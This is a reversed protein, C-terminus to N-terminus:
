CQCVVFWWECLHKLLQKQSPKWCRCRDLRSCTALDDIVDCCDPSSTMGLGCQSASYIQRGTVDTSRWRQRWTVEQREAQIWFECNFIGVECYTEIL